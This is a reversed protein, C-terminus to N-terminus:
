NKNKIHIYKISKDIVYISSKISNSLSKLISVKNSLQLVFDSSLDSRNYASANLYMSMQQPM